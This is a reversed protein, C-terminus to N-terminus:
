AGDTKVKHLKLKPELEFCDGKAKMSKDLEFDVIVEHKANSKSDFAKFVHNIKVGKKDIRAVDLHCEKGKYTATNNEPKSTDLVLRLQTIKGEPLDLQGLVDAATEGQHAVLDIKKNVQLSVWKDDDDISGDAPDGNKSSKPEDVHVQMSAVTVHVATVGDPPADMLKLEAISGGGCATLAAALLAALLTHRM